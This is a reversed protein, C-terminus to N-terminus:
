QLATDIISFILDKSVGLEQRRKNFDAPNKFTFVKDRSHWTQLSYNRIDIISYLTEARYPKLTDSPNWGNSIHYWKGNEQYVSDAQSLYLTDNPDQLLYHGRQNTEKFLRLRIEEEKDPHHKVIIFSDNYGVAFVTPKIAITGNTGSNDFSEMIVQEKPETSWTLYFPGTLHKASTEHDDFPFCGVLALILLGISLTRKLKKLHKNVM